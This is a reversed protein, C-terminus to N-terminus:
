IGTHYIARTPSSAATAGAIGSGGAPPRRRQGRSELLSIVDDPLESAEAPRHLTLSRIEISSM